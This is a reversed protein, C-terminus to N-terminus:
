ILFTMSPLPGDLTLFTVQKYAIKWGDPTKRLRYVCRAAHASPAVNRRQAGSRYEYLLLNCHIRVDDPAPADEVEVNSVFRVTSSRPDQAHNLGSESIRWIRSELRRRDDYVISLHQDPVSAANNVPVWYAVDDTTLAFWAQLQGEDLLRAERFLFQEAEQASMTAAIM